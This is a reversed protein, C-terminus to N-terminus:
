DAGAAIPYQAATAPLVDAGQQRVAAALSEWADLVDDTPDAIWVRRQAAVPEASLREGTKLQSALIHALENLKHWYTRDSPLPVPWGFTMPAPEEFAQSWFPLPTISQIGSHWTGRETPSMEVLFVRDAAVGGHRGVFRDMEMRCWSSELYRPSMLALFCDASGVRETLAADVAKQPELRHDMWVRTGSGGPKTAVLKQLRDAFTTVWGQAGDVMVHNDAHAYSVFVEPM